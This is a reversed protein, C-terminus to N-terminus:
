EPLRFRKLDPKRVFATVSVKRELLWNFLAVQSESTFAALLRDRADLMERRYDLDIAFGEDNAKGIVTPDTTTEYPYKQLWTAARSERRAQRTNQALGETELLEWEHPLLAERLDHTFGNDKGHWDRLLTFATEWALWEPIQSPDKEGDIVLLDKKDLETVNAQASGILAIASLLPVSVHM